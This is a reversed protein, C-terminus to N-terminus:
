NRLFLRGPIKPVRLILHFKVFNKISRWPLATLRNEGFFPGGVRTAWISRRSAAGGASGSPQQGQLTRAVGLLRVPLLASRASRSATRATSCTAFQAEARRTLSPMPGMARNGRRITRKLSAARRAATPLARNAPGCNLSMEAFSVPKLRFRWARIKFSSRSNQM